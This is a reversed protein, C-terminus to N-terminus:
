TIFTQQLINFRNGCDSRSICGLLLPLMKRLRIIRLMNHTDTNHATPTVPCQFVAPTQM